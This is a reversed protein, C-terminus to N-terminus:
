ENEEAYKFRRQPACKIYFQGKAHIDCLQMM